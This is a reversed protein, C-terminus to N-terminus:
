IYRVMGNAGQMERLDHDARRWKVDESVNYLSGLVENRTPCVAILSSVMWYAFYDPQGPVLNPGPAPRHAALIKEFAGLDQPPTSREQDIDSPLKRALLKAADMVECWTDFGGKVERKLWDTIGTTILGPPIVGTKRRLPTGPSAETEAAPLPSLGQPNSHIKPAPESCVSQSTVPIGTGVSREQVSVRKEQDTVVATRNHAEKRSMESPPSQRGVPTQPSVARSSASGGASPVPQALPAAAKATSPANQLQPSPPLGQPHLTSKVPNESNGAMRPDAGTGPGDARSKPTAEQARHPAEIRATGSRQAEAATGQDIVLHPRSSAGFTSQRISLDAFELKIRRIYPTKDRIFDLIFDQAKEPKNIAGEIDLGHHLPSRRLANMMRRSLHRMEPESLELDTCRGLIERVLEFFNQARMREPNRTVIEPKAQAQQPAVTIIRSPKSQRASRIASRLWGAFGRWRRQRKEYMAQGSRKIAERKSRKRANELKIELDEMSHALSRNRKGAKVSKKRLKRGQRVAFELASLQVADVVLTPSSGSSLKTRLEQLLKAFTKNYGNENSHPLSDPNELAFTQAKVLLDLGPKILTLETENLTIRTKRPRM